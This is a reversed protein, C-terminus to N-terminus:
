DNGGGGGGNGGGNQSGVLRGHRGTDDSFTAVIRANRLRDGPADAPDIRGEISMPRGMVTGTGAFRNEVLNVQARLRGVNGDLDEVTVNINVNPGGVAVNGGGIFDGAVKVKYSGNVQARARQNAGSATLAAACLCAAFLIVRFSKRM